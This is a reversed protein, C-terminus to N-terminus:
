QTKIGKNATVRDAMNVSLALEPSCVTGTHM